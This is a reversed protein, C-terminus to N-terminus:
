CRTLKEMMDQMFFMRPNSSSGGVYFDDFGNTDINGVTNGPGYQSLKHPLTPQINYDVFDDEVPKYAIGYQKSASTFIAPRTLAKYRKSRLADKENVTITQGTSINTLM